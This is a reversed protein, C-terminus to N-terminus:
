GRADSDDAQQGDHRGHAQELAIGTLRVHLSGACHNDGAGMKQIAMQAACARDTLFLSLKASPSFGEELATRVFFCLLPSSMFTRVAHERPRLARASTPM